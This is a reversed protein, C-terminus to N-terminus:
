FTMIQWGKRTAEAVDQTYPTLPIGLRKAAEEIGFTRAAVKCIGVKVNLGMIIELSEHVEDRIDKINEKEDTTLEDKLNLYPDDQFWESGHGVIVLRMPLDDTAAVTELLRTVDLARQRESRTQPGSMLIAMLGDRNESDVREETDTM